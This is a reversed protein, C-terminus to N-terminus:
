VQTTNDDKDADDADADADDDDNDNDNDDDDDDDSGIESLSESDSELFQEVNNSSNETDTNQSLPLESSENENEIEDSEVVSGESVVFDRLSDGSSMNEESDSWYFGEEEKDGERQEMWKEDNHPDDELDSLTLGSENEYYFSNEPDGLVEELYRVPPQRHRTSRRLPVSQCPSSCCDCRENEPQSSITPHSM